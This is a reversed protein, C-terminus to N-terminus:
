ERTIIKVRLYKQNAYKDIGDMPGHITVVFGNITLRVM